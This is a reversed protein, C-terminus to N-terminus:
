GDIKMTDRLDINRVCQNVRFILPFNWFQYYLTSQLVSSGWNWPCQCEAMSKLVLSDV